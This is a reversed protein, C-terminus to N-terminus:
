RSKLIIKLTNLKAKAEASTLFCNGSRYRARDINDNTWVERYVNSTSTLDKYFFEIFYYHERFKPKWRKHIQRYITREM